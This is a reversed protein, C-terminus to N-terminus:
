ALIFTYPPAYLACYPMIIPFFWDVGKELLWKDETYILNKPTFKGLRCLYAPAHIGTQLHIILWKDETYILNLM